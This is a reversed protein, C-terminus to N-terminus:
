TTPPARGPSCREWNLLEAVNVRHDYFATAPGDGKLWVDGLRSAGVCVYVRGRWTVLPRNAQLWAHDKEMASRRAHELFEKAIPDPNPGDLYDDVHLFAPPPMDCLERKSAHEGKCGSIVCYYPM